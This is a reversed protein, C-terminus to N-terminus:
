SKRKLVNDVYKKIIENDEPMQCGVIYKNDNLSSRIVKGELTDVGSIDFDDIKVVVHKGRCDAFSIADSMFAFGNASVNYLRGKYAKGEEILTISCTNSFSIREYKRRNLISPRKDVLVQFLTGDNDLCMSITANEWYYIINNATVSVKCSIPYSKFILNDKMRITMANDTHEVIEGHYDRTRGDQNKLTLTVKMQSHLDEIGMFGGSGLETMLGEVVDEISNINNASESFKSLMDKTTSDSVDICETMINVISNVQEMNNVLKSNSSEVEKIAKDIVLINKELETSDKTISNVSENVNIIKDTITQIIKLTEGVSSTMKESTTELNKLAERIQGSSQHTDTSLLRIQDAVVAFGKGSEGARAAEISANLALLNTQSTISEITSTEDKVKEFELLFQKLINEVENSLKSMINTSLVVDNLEKYSSSAHEGSAKTLEVMENILSSVNQVQANIESTMNLSSTTQNQLNDNNNTLECMKNVVADAGQQNEVSLEKVVTIGDVISTSATKVKEVTTIVRNLDDKISNMMAGDSEHLHNISMVYCIYCLIISSIQLEFEKLDNTTNMGGTYKLVANLIVIVSNIIGCKIMFVQDKYIILLGTVPLVYTFAIFSKSTLLVYTYLIGYGFAIVHKYREASMGRVKLVFYGTLFPSWCLLLFIIFKNVSYLQKITDSAYNITLLVSFIFWVLRVKRNAKEKFVKEDYNM